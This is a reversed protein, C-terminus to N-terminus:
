IPFGWHAWPQLHGTTVATMAAARQARLEVQTAAALLAAIAQAAPLPM